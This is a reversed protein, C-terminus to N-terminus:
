NKLRAEQEKLLFLSIDDQTVGEAHFPTDMIAILKLMYIYIFSLFGTTVIEDTLNGIKTTLLMLILLAVIGQVLIFASPLPQIKQLYHMRLIVKFINNQEQKLKVIYNAPLGNKEMTVFYGTLAKANKFSEYSHSTIDKRFSSLIEGLTKNFGKDDFRKYKEKFLKGEQYISEVNAVLEVPMKESEKYDSHTTSLIFGLVFVSGALLGTHLATINSIELGFYQFAIKLIVILVVVALTEFFIKFKKM